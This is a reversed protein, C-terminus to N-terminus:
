IIEGGAVGEIACGARVNMVQGEPQKTEQLSEVNRGVLGGNVYIITERICTKARGKTSNKKGPATTIADNLTCFQDGSAFRLKVFNGQTSSRFGHQALSWLESM